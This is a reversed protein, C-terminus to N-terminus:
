FCQPVPRRVDRRRLVLVGTGRFRNGPRERRRPLSARCSRHGPFHTDSTGRRNLLLPENISVDQGSRGRIEHVPPVGHGDVTEEGRETACRRYRTVGSTDDGGSM